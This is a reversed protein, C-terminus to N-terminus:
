QIEVRRPSSAVNEGQEFSSNMNIESQLKHAIRVFWTGCTLNRLVHSCVLCLNLPPAAALLAVPIGAFM